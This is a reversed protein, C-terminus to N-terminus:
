ELADYTWLIHDGPDLEYVGFSRDARKGNVFYVWNRAKAGGGENARGDISVLLAMKGSGRVSFQIGPKRDSAIQMTQEVTMGARWPISAIRKRTVDGFDIELDVTELILARYPSAADQAAPEDRLVARDHLNILCIAALGLLFILIAPGLRSSGDASRSTDPALRDDSM